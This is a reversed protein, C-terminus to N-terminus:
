WDGAYSLPDACHARLYKYKVGVIQRIHLYDHALWNHLLLSAKMPGLKPHHYTNDWQPNDLSLLYAVSVERESLFKELMQGFDQEMYMRRSVWGQPDIAPMELEPNTLVHRVRARFDEREEDYLHCLIELLCWKETQPRWIFQVPEIDKLLQNFVDKNRGLEIAIETHDM